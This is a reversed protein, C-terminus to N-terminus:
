RANAQKQLTTTGSGDVAQRKIIAIRDEFTELAKVIIELESSICSDNHESM